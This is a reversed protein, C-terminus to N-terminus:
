GPAAPRCDRKQLLRANGDSVDCKGIDRYFLTKLRAFCGNKLRKSAKPLVYGAVVSFVTKFATLVSQL